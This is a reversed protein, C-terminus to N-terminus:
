HRHRHGHGEHLPTDRPPSSSADPAGAGGGADSRTPSRRLEGVLHALEPLILRDLALRVAAPSGPTLFVAVGGVIGATARSLMAASGIEAFSLM